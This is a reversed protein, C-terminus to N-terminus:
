NDLSRKREYEAVAESSEKDMHTILETRDTFSQNCYTCTIPPSMPSLEPQDRDDSTELSEEISDVNINDNDVGNNKNFSSYGGGVCEETSLSEGNEVYKKNIASYYLLLLIPNHRRPRTEEKLGKLEIFKDSLFWHFEKNLSIKKEINYGAPSDAMDVLGTAKLETMTRRATPSTTNLAKTIQSTTLTGSNAILLDFITARALSCTSLVVKIIMPIDTLTIYNRGQSLAHGKALNRLQTIARSPDEVIAIDFNYESGQSDKTEWTPVVARLPALLKGLKIIYRHAFEEDKTHDLPIKPLDNDDEFAICPNGDFYELYELLATRITVVKDGFDENVQDFYSDETQTIRPLRFFYLKPGLLSLHKHVKYPIDVAAGLWTFMIDEDYGRHGQAGTDSTYGHGDLVSTLIGLTQLLDEDRASFTPALEPTLFLKNKTKPLMDVDRLKDKKIASNHSVWSRPSFDHTHFTHECGKFLEIVVTKLSSPPGLLIGAFPLTCHRINLISKVSLAFELAPWLNPLNNSVVKLLNEYRELLKETWRAAEDAKHDDIDNLLKDDDEEVTM